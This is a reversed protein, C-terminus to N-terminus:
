VASRPPGVARTAFASPEGAWGIAKVVEGVGRAAVIVGAEVEAGRAAGIVGGTLEETAGTEGGVVWSTGQINGVLATRTEGM